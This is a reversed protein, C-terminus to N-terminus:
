RPLPHGKEGASHEMDPVAELGAFWGYMVVVEVVSGLSRASMALLVISSQLLYICRLSRLIIVPWSGYEM